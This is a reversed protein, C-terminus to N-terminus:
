KRGEWELSFHGGDPKPNGLSDKFDGGWRCLPHLSRWYEGLPRYPESSKQWEGNIFLRLDIALSILHLSNAIGAGSKANAEAQAKSRELEGGTLEYGMAYAYDILRPLLKMFLSQHERLKM